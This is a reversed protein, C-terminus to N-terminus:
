EKAAKDKLGKMAKLDKATCTCKEPSDKAYYLLESREASVVLKNCDREDFSFFYYMVSADQKTIAKQIEEREVEEVEGDLLTPGDEKGKLELIKDQVLLKKNSMQSKDTPYNSATLEGKAEIAFNFYNNLMQVGRIMESEWDPTDIRNSCFARAIVDEHLARRKFKNLVQLGNFDEESTCVKAKIKSGKSKSFVLFSFEPKNMYPKMATDFAYVTGTFSWYRDVAAKISANYASDPGLVVVMRTDKFKELDAQKVFGFQARCVLGLFFCAALLASRRMIEVSIKYKLYVFIFHFSCGSGSKRM